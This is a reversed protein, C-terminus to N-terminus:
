GLHSLSYRLTGGLEEGALNAISRATHIGYLAGDPVDLKGLSDQETRM